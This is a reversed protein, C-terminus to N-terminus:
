GAVQCLLGPFSLTLWFARPKVMWRSVALQAFMPHEGGLSFNLMTWFENAPDTRRIDYQRARSLPATVSSSRDLARQVVALAVFDKEPLPLVEVVSGDRFCATMCPSGPGEPMGLDARRMSGAGPM